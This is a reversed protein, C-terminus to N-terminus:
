SPELPMPTAGFRLLSFMDVSIRQPELTDNIHIQVMAVAITPLIKKLLTPPTAVFFTRQESGLARM